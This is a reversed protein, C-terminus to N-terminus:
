FKWQLEQKRMDIEYKSARQMKVELEGSGDNNTAFMDGNESIRINSFIDPSYFPEVKENTVNYPTFFHISHDTYESAIQEINKQEGNKLTYKLRMVGTNNNFLVLLGRYTTYDTDTFDVTFMRAEIAYSAPNDIKKDVASKILTVVRLNEELAEIDVNYSGGVNAAKYHVIAGAFDQKKQKMYGLTYQCFSKKADKMVGTIADDFAKEFNRDAYNVWARNAYALPYAALNIAKDLDLRALTFENMARYAAGRNNLAIYDTPNDQLYKTYYYIKEANTTSAYGKSFLMSGKHKNYLATLLSTKIAYNIMQVREKIYQSRVVGVVQGSANFVPSGSSGPSVPASITFYNKDIFSV